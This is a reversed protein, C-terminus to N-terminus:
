QTVLSPPTFRGLWVFKPYQNDAGYDGEITLSVVLSRINALVPTTNGTSDYYLVKFETLGTAIVEATGGNVVRYLVKDNPNPTARAVADDTSSLYYRMTELTGDGNDDLVYRVDSAEAKTIINQRPDNVGYGIRSFDYDLLQVVADMNGYAIHDLTDLQLDRSVDNNFQQFSVLVMGGIVVSAILTLWSGM